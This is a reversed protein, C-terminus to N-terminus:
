LSYPLAGKYEEFNRIQKDRVNNSYIDSAEISKIYISKNMNHIREM